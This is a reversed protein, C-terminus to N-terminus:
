RPTLQCPRRNGDASARDRLEELTGEAVLKGRAIIGIRDAMREAILRFFTRTLYPHGWKRAGTDQYFVWFADWHADTIEAGILHRLRRENIEVFGGGEGGEEGGHHLPRREM